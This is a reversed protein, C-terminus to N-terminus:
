KRKRKAGSRRGGPDQQWSRELQRAEGEPVPQLHWQREEGHPCARLNALPCMQPDEGPEQDRFFVDAWSRDGEAAGEQEMIQEIEGVYYRWEGKHTRHPMVVTSGVEMAGVIGEQPPNAAVRRRKRMRLSDEQPAEEQPM